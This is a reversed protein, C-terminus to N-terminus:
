DTLFRIYCRDDFSKNGYMVGKTAKFFSICLPDEELQRALAKESESLTNCLVPYGDSALVVEVGDPVDIIKVKDLPVEFGDIVSYEINQKMCGEIIDDIIIDRGIDHKRVEDITLGRSLRDKLFASRRAALVAELPKSNEYYEGAVLCQCDGIMWIQRYYESYVAVSATLREVPKDSLRHFDINYTKYVSSITETLKRCLEPLSIDQPMCEIDCSICQMCYRGNTTGPVIMLPSKSTSGDIVALLGNGIAIGDECTEQNKKGEIAQEVIKM